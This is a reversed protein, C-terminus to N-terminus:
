VTAVPEVGVMKASEAFFAAALVPDKATQIPETPRNGAWYRGTGIAEAPDLSLKSIIQAASDLTDFGRMGFGDTLLKTTIVGPHLANVLIGENKLRKALEFSFLINALKSNGYARGPSFTQMQLRLDRATINGNRHANSAVNVIRAIEHRHPGALLLHTLLFPALHNVAFTTEFGDETIIADNMFVGANNAIVHIPGARFEIDTALARVSALSSFDGLVETVVSDERYNRLEAAVVGTREASRGHLVLRAGQKALYMATARGIGDTAGTLLVVPRDPLPRPTM